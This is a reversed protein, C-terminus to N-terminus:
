ESYFVKIEKQSQNGAQDIAKITIINEGSNLRFSQSFANDQNVNTFRDNIYVQGAKDLNGQIQIMQQTIGFFTASDAPNEVTIEPPSDDFFVQHPQSPESQQNNNNMAIATLQNNGKSLEVQLFAFDGEDNTSTEAITSGNNYLVVRSNAPAYGRVAISASPTAEYPIALRPAYPPLSNDDTTPASDSARLEGFFGAMRIIAPIGWILGGVIILGTIVFLMLSQRMMRKNEKRALRSRYQRSMNLLSYGLPYNFEIIAQVM